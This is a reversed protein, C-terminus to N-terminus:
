EYAGMSILSGTEGNFKMITCFGSYGENVTVTKILMLKYIPFGIKGVSVGDETFGEHYDIKEVEETEESNTEVDFDIKAENLMKTVSDFDNM